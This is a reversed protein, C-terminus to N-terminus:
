IVPRARVEDPGIEKLLAQAGLGRRIDEVFIFDMEKTIVKPIDILDKKNPAPLIM